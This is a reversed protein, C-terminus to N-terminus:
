RRVALEERVMAVVAEPHRTVMAWNVRIVRWGANTLAKERRREARIIEAPDGFSGSYKFEGDFELILKEKEWAFDARFTVGDLTLAFQPTFGGLNHQVLLLRTLSEGASETRADALELVQRARAVGRRTTLPDLMAFLEDRVGGRHLFGDVVVLAEAVPLVRACDVTTRNLSTLSFAGMQVIHNESVPWARNVVRRGSRRSGRGGVGGLVFPRAPLHLVPLRWMLAASVACFTPPHTMTLAIAHHVARCREWPSLDDWVTSKVWAGRAIRVLGLRTDVGSVDARPAQALKASIQASTMITEPRFQGMRPGLQHQRSSATTTMIALMRPWM